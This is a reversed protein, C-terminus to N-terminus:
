PSNSCHSCCPPACIKPTSGAATASPRLPITAFASISDPRASNKGVTTYVSECRWRRRANNHRDNFSDSRSSCSGKKYSNWLSQQQRYVTCLPIWCKCLSKCTCCPWGKWGSLCPGMERIVWLAFSKCGLQGAFPVCKWTHKSIICPMGPTPAGGTAHPTM